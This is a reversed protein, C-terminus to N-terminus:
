ECPEQEHLNEIYYEDYQCARCTTADPFDEAQRPCRPQDCHERLLAKVQTIVERKTRGWLDRTQGRLDKTNPGVYYTAGWTGSSFRHKSIFAKITGSSNDNVYTTMFCKDYHFTFRKTKTPM